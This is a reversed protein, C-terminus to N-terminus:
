AAVRRSENAELQRRLKTARVDDLYNQYIYSAFGWIAQLMVIIKVGNLKDHFAMVSAIPAVAMGVTSIVNSFLSSVLFVLGVAGISCVQFSVATSVLTMVYSVKGSQFLQMEGELSRWQGSIFLAGVCIISAVVSPYIQMEMVASFTEKKQVKQFTLQMLSLILSYIASAALTCVFGIAYKSNTVGGSENSTEDVGLLAASYTLIVVSNLILPTIKQSNIFYAFIANFALQTACILSFTSASLYLLGYSYLLSDGALLTGLGIYILYISKRTVSNSPTSSSKSASSFILPIFLIPFGATKVLTALITSSGGQDYYFRGLLVIATEGAVLLFVNLLVWFWWQFRNLKVLLPIEAQALTHDGVDSAAM